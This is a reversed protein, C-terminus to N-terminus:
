RRTRRARLLDVGEKLLIMDAPALGLALALRTDIADTVQSWHGKRAESDLNDVLSDDLKLLPILLSQAESPELKLMGGGLSHGSLECSLKVISSQWVAALQSGDLSAGPKMRVVHLTNPAVVNALNAVMRPETGSMYTLLADGVHVHPVAYWPDRTRCKFADAVGARKGKLVYRRVQPSLETQTGLRLLSNKEGADRQACWDAKTLRLGRFSAGRRVARKLVRPELGAAKIEQKSLHFFDNAGTVYGIGVDALDGLRRVSVHSQLREVLARTAAPLLYHSMRVAGRSVAPADMVVSGDFSATEGLAAVDPVRALAFRSFTEGRGDCMLLVTDEGLHAFIRRDFTVLSVDRFQDCFYKILPQAYAAHALEGPAVVALRGGPKIFQVAHVLFPAWSSALGSLQVGAERARLLAQKRIDGSFRQYRIFPPNGIVADVSGTDAPAVSFFDAQRLSVDFGRTALDAETAACTEARMEVGIVHNRDSGGHARLRTAAATLFVGDGASPDLVVDDPSRIAWHTLFTAVASPTYFAGHSKRIAATLTM